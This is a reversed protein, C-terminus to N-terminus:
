GRKLPGDCFLWGGGSLTSHQQALMVEIFANQAVGLGSLLTRVIECHVLCLSKSCLVRSGEGDGGIHGSLPVALLKGFAKIFLLIFVFPICNQLMRVM